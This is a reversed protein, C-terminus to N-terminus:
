ISEFAQRLQELIVQSAYDELSLFVGAFVAIIVVVIIASIFKNSEPWKIRKAERGVGKFYRLISKM